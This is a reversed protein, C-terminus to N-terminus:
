MSVLVTWVALLGVALGASTVVGPLKSAPAAAIAHARTQHLHRVSTPM